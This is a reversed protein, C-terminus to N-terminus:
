AIAVDFCPRDVVGALSSIQMWAKAFPSTSVDAETSTLAQAAMVLRMAPTAVSLAALMLWAVM